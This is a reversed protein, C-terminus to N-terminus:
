VGTLDQVLLGRKQSAHFCDAVLCHLYQVEESVLIHCADDGRYAGLLLVKQDVPGIELLSLIQDVAAPRKESGSGGLALLHLVVVVTGDPGANCIVHPVQVLLEPLQADAGLGLVVLDCRALVLKGSDIGGGVDGYVVVLDDHVHHLLDGLTVTEHTKQVLLGKGSDVSAALVVVPGNGGIGPTVQQIRSLVGLGIESEEQEKSCHDLGNILILVQKTNGNGACAVVVTQSGVLGWRCNNGHEETVLKGSDEIGDCGSLVCASSGLFAHLESYM